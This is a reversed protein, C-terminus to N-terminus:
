VNALASLINAKLSDFDTATNVGQRMQEFASQYANLREKVDIKNSIVRGNNNNPQFDGLYLTSCAPGEKTISFVKNANNYVWCFDEESSFDWAYEWMKDTTGFQATSSGPANTAFKFANNSNWAATSFDFAPAAYDTKQVVFTGDMVGGSRLLYETTINSISNDIHQQTVFGSVDPIQGAVEQVQAVSARTNILQELIDLEYQVESRSMLLAYDPAATELAAIRDNQAHQSINYDAETVFGSVDPIVLAKVASDVAAIKQELETVEAADAANFAEIKEQLNHLGQERLRTETQVSAKLAAIDDDYSYAVSTPVWQGSNDDLYWISLELAETDYWLTGAPLPDELTNPPPAEGIYVPQHDELGNNLSVLAEFLWENYDKQVSMPFTINGEGDVEPSIDIDPLYTFDEMARLKPGIAALPLTGTNQIFGEPNTDAVLRWVPKAGVNPDTQLVATPSSTSVMLFTSLVTLQMGGSNVLCWRSSPGPPTADDTLIPIGDAGNTQYWDDEVWVFLRGQRTDFWLQGDKPKETIIWIPNGDIDIIIDGGPPKEGTDSGPKYQIDGLDQIAAIIGAFNEPYAKTMGASRVHLDQLAGVIGGYSEAKHAAPKHYIGVSPNWVQNGDANLSPRPEEGAAQQEVDYSATM